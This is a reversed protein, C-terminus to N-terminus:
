QYNIYTGIGILLDSLLLVPSAKHLWSLKLGLIELVLGKYM